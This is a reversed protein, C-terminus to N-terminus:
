FEGKHTRGNRDKQHQKHWQGCERPPVLAV